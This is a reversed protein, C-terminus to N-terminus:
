LTLREPVKVGNRKLYQGVPDADAHSLSYSISIFFNAIVFNLIFIAMVMGFCCESVDTPRGVRVEFSAPGAKEPAAGWHSAKALPSQKETCVTNTLAPSKVGNGQEAKRRVPVTKVFAVGRRTNKKM